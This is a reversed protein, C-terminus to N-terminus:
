ILVLRFPMCLPVCIGGAAWVAWQCVVYDYGNPALFAIRREELDAGPKAGVAELLTRKLRSADELLQGYTFWQDKTRDIIAIQGPNESAYKRAQVFLPLSPLSTSDLM